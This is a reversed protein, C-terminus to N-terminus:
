AVAGFTIVVRGFTARDDMKAAAEDFREVPLVHSVLPRIRKQAYLEIVDRRVRDAREPEREGFQRADVGVLAAGKVISLNTKLQGIQGGAFGIMLLRGNWGLTRFGADTADGGVPDYVVDVGKPALAKVHDKWDASSSDVTDDAGAARAAERKAETSAAAIVRAGLVKGLQVAAHGVGGSAGLVLLTEGERLAGRERLAYLATFFSAMLVSGETFDAQPLLAYALPRPLCVYESWAGMRTGCVRDGVKLGPAASSGLADVVGSFESGPVFPLPPKVQYNGRALLLDVFSVGCAHVRVRVEGDRPEPLPVDQLQIGGDSQYSHVLLTKM